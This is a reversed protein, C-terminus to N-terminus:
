FRETNVAATTWTATTRFSTREGSLGTVRSQCGTTGSENRRWFEIVRFAARCSLTTLVRNFQLCVQVSFQVWLEMEESSAGPVIHWFSTWLNKLVRNRATVRAPVSGAGLEELDTAVSDPLNINKVLVIANFLAVAKDLYFAATHTLANKRQRVDEKVKEAIAVEYQNCDFFVRGAM